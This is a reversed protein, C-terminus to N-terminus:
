YAKKPPLLPADIVYVVGNSASLTKVISSSNVRVQGISIVTFNVADSSLTMASGTNMADLDVARNAIVHYQVFRKREASTMAGTNVGRMATDTPVFVTYRGGSSITKGVDTSMLLSTFQTANSISGVIAAVDTARVTTATAPSAGTNASSGSPNNTNGGQVTYNGGSTQSNWWLFGVAIVLAAVGSFWLERRVATSRTTIIAM